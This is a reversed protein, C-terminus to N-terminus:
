RAGAGAARRPAQAAFSKGDALFLRWRQARLGIRDGAALPHDASTDVTVTLDRGVEVEARRGPGHRTVSRVVGALGQSPAGVDWHQPRVFLRAPGHGVVDLGLPVPRDYLWAKGQDLTVPLESSDGIFSFVFPSAPTDYVEDPTGVQEIRGKDLVVVRDALELAEEQDHTVFVTTYGTEQHIERLWKRLEKRVKADLAGFPEDLLLVKPDVALARALAVRQRQGGSLQAPYRNELGTLRVLDLLSMVRQRIEAKSPRAARPRVSLGFGINEAVTMHKFLAYHQFVFGVGRERVPTASAEEDGFFIQGRSPQELGAISRLLTTKGSGSPGLLALLEGARIDLDVGHLAPFTGFDKALDRIRIEM